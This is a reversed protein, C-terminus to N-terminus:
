PFEVERGGWFLIFYFLCSENKAMWKCYELRAEAASCRARM